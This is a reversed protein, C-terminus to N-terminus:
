ENSERDENKEIICGGVDMLFVIFGCLAMFLGDSM